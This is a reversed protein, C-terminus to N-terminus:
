KCHKKEYDRRFYPFTAYIILLVVGLVSFLINTKMDHIGFNFVVEMLLAIISVEVLDKIQIHHHISYSKLIKFSKVLVLIFTVVNLIETGSKIQLYQEKSLSWQMIQSLEQAMLQIVYIGLICTKYLIYTAVLIMLLYICVSVFKKMFLRFTEQHKGMLVSSFYYRAKITSYKLINRM